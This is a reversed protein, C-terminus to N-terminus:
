PGSEAFKHIQRVDDAGRSLRQMKTAPDTMAADWPSMGVIAAAYWHARGISSDGVSGAAIATAMAFPDGYERVHTSAQPSEPM